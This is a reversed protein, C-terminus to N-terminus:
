PIAAVLVESEAIGQASYPLHALLCAVTMVCAQGPQVRYLMIERGDTSIQQVRLQGKLLILYSDCPSGPNFALTHEPLTLVSSRELAKHWVKDRISALEPVYELWEPTHRTASKVPDDLRLFRKQVVAM